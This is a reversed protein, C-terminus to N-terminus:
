VPVITITEGNYNLVLFVFTHCFNRGNVPPFGVVDLDVQFLIDAGPQGAPQFTVVEDM